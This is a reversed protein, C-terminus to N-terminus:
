RHATAAPAPGAADGGCARPASARSARSSASQRRGAPPLSTITPTVSSTPPQARGAVAATCAAVGDADAYGKLGALVAASQGIAKNAVKVVGKHAIDAGMMTLLAGIPNGGM